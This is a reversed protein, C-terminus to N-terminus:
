HNEVLFIRFNLNLSEQHYARQNSILSFCCLNNIDSQHKLGQADVGKQPAFEYTTM